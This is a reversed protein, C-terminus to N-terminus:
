MIESEINRAFHIYQYDIVVLIGLFVADLLPMGRWHKCLALHAGETLHPYCISKVGLVDRCIKEIKRLVMGIVHYEQYKYELGTIPTKYTNIRPYDPKTKAREYCLRLQYQM